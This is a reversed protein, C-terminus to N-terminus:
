KQHLLRTIKISLNLFTIKPHTNRSLQYATESLLNQLKEINRDHIYPAFRNLMFNERSFDTFGNTWIGKNILYAERFVELSFLLFSQQFIKSESTIRETWDTLENIAKPRKLATWATRVWEVFYKKFEANPDEERLYQLAKNLNGEAATAWEMAKHRPIEPNFTLINKLMEEKAVPPVRYIVCRSLVTPLLLKENETTLIFHTDQPPEELVKLLKNATVTNMKDALWILVVKNRALIPYRYIKKSLNEADKVRILGEKDGSEIFKLWDRYSGFPNRRLFEHWHEMYNESSVSAGYKSTVSPFIFHLDPHIFKGTQEKCHPDEKCLIMSALKLALFLSGYGTNGSLLITHPLRKNQLSKQWMSLLQEHIQIDKFQM